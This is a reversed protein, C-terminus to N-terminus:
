FDDIIIDKFEDTIDIKELPIGLEKASTEAALPSADETVKMWVASVDYGAKKLLLASTSSDVGGSLALLVRKNDSDTM